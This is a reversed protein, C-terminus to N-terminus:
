ASGRDQLGAFFERLRARQADPVYDINMRRESIEWYKERTVQLLEEALGRVFAPDLGVFSARIQAAAEPWEALLFYSALLAQAKKVGPLPRPAASDYRLFDDLLRQRNPAGAEWAAQVLAAIDHAVAEIIFPLQLDRAVQGYYRFYYAIEVVVEPSEPSLAEAYQRYQDLILFVSRPDRRNLSLRLWTNFFEITLDRVAPDHRAATELGLKRLAKAATSVLEPLRPVAANMVQRLESFLKMEVWSRSDTLEAMAKSSFGLFANQEAIFWAPPLGPKMAWYARLIRELTFVGEIATNRDGRDASRVTVNAVHEIDAAVKIRMADTRRRAARLDAVLENELRALLTQPHLFRFIYLLYPFLLSFGAITLGLSVYLQLQPASDDKLALALWINNLNAFLVLPLVTANVRDKIFIELFKVSYMNATLPVALAVTTFTVGTLQNLSRSFLNNVHRAEDPSFATLRAFPLGSLWLEVALEIGMVTLMVAALAVVGRALLFVDRKM